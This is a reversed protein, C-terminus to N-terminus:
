EFRLMPTNFRTNKNASYQSGSSNNVKIWKKREFKSATSNNLLKSTECHEIKM